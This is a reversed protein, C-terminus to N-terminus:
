GPLTLAPVAAPAALLLVGLVALLAGTGRTAVRRWPLIKELAVLAAGFAAWGLSMVGLAFLAAVVVGTPFTRKATVAVVALAAGDLVLAAIAAARRKTERSVRCWRRAGM